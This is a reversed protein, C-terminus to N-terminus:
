NLQKLLLGYPRIAREVMQQEEEDSTGRPIRVLWYKDSNHKERYRPNIRNQLIVMYKKGTKYSVFSKAYKEAEKIYPTSYIGRGYVAGPGPEYFGSIIGDAGAKSTGHFSVPWEGPVSQTSRYRTGLWTTGDYKGLVKLGFRQWGCPREYVEGGRFYTETDKLHTFDYNFPPDFFENQDIVLNRSTTSVDMMHAEAFGGADDDQGSGQLVSQLHRYNLGSVRCTQESDVMTCIFNNIGMRQVHCDMGASRPRQVSSVHANCIIGLAEIAVDQDIM